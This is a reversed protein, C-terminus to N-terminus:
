AQARITCFSSKSVVDALFRSVDVERSSTMTQWRWRAPERKGKKNIKQKEILRAALRLARMGCRGDGCVLNVQRSIVFMSHTALLTM